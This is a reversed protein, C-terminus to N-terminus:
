GKPSNGPHAGEHEPTREAEETAGGSGAGTAHTVDQDPRGAHAAQDGAANLAPNAEVQPWPGIPDHQHVNGAKGFKQRRRQERNQPAPAAEAEAQPRTPTASKPKTAPARKPSAPMPEPKKKTAM